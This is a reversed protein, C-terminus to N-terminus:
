RASRSSSRRGDTRMRKARETSYRNMIEQPDFGLEKPDVLGQPLPM